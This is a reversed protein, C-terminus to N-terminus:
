GAEQKLKRTSLIDFIKASYEHIENTLSDKKLSLIGHVLICLLATTLGFSTATLAEAIGEALIKQKDAGTANAAGGFSRILGFITGLLGMLTAINAITALFNIWHNIKPLATLTACDLAHEIEETTENARKLGEGIVYPLLKPSAQKCM